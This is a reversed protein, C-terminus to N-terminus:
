WPRLCGVFGFCLWDVNLLASLWDVVLLVSIHGVVLRRLRFIVLRCDGCGVSSWDGIEVALRQGIM